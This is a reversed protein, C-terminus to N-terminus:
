RTHHSPWLREVDSQAMTLRIVLFRAFAILGDIERQVHSLLRIPVRLDLM